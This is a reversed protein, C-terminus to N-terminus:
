CTANVAGLLEEKAGDSVLTQPICVDHIFSVLSHDVSVGKKNKMPYICDFGKGNTYVQAAIHGRISKV